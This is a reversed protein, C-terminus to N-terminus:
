LTYEGSELCFPLLSELFREFHTDLDLHEINLVDDVSDLTGVIIIYFDYEGVDASSRVIM